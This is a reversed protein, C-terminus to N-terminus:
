ETLWTEEGCTCHIGWCRSNQSYKWPSFVVVRSAREFSPMLKVYSLTTRDVEIIGLPVM